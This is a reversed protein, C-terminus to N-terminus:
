LGLNEQPIEGTEAYHYLQVKSTVGAKAAKELLDVPDLKEAQCFAEWDRRDDVETIGVSDLFDPEDKTEPVKTGIYALVKEYGVHGLDYADALIDPLREDPRLMSKIKLAEDKSLHHAGAKEQTSITAYTLAKAGSPALSVPSNGALLARAQAEPTNGLMLAVFNPPNPDLTLRATGWKTVEEGITKQLRNITLHCYGRQMGMSRLTDVIGYVERNFIAGKSAFEWLVIDKTAHLIVRLTTKLTCHSKNDPDPGEGEPNCLCPVEGMDKCYVIKKGERKMDIFHCTLGDCRHTPTMGDYKEFGEDLSMATDVICGIQGSESDLEFEGHHDPWSMIKGGYAKQLEELASKNASTFRFTDRQFGPRNPQKREGMRIKGVRLMARQREILIPMLLSM